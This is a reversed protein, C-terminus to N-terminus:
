NEEAPQGEVSDSAKLKSDLVASLKERYTRLARVGILNESEEPDYRLNFLAQPGKENSILKWERDRVYRIGLSAGFVYDRPQGAFVSAGQTQSPSPVGLIELATPLLDVLSVLRSDRAPTAGPVYILWPVRATHEHFSSHDGEGHEFLEEGHDAFFIVVSDKLRGSKELYDWLEGIQADLEGVGHDYAGVYTKMEKGGRMHKVTRKARRLQWQGLRLLLQDMSVYNDFCESMDDFRRCAEIAKRNNFTKEDYNAFLTAPSHRTIGTIGELIRTPRYPLELRDDFDASQLYPMQTINSHLFFFSRGATGPFTKRVLAGNLKTPADPPFHLGHVFPSPYAADFGRRFGDKVDMLKYNLPAMWVTKYKEARFIEAATKFGAGLASGPGEKKSLRRMKVDAGEVGHSPPYMSTFVTMLSPTTYFANTFANEFVLSQGAIRDLNPTLGLPSGLFGMRDARLSDLSVLILNCGKCSLRPPPAEAAPRAREFSERWTWRIEQQFYAAAGALALVALSLVLKKRNDLPGTM